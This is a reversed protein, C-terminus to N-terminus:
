CAALSFMEITMFHYFHEEVRLDHGEKQRERDDKSNNSFYSNTTLTSSDFYKTVTKLEQLNKYSLHLTETLIMIYFAM